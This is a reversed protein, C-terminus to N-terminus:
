VCSAQGITAPRINGLKIVAEKKLAHVHKYDIDSPITKNEMRIIKEAQKKQREIHGEYQIDTAIADLHEVHFMKKLEEPLLTWDNGPRKLWTSLSVGEHKLAAAKIIGEEVANKRDEAKRAM